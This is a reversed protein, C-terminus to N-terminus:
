RRPRLRLTEDILTEVTAADPVTGRIAYVGRELEDIFPSVDLSFSFTARPIGVEACLERFRPRTLAGGNTRLIHVMVWETTTLAVELSRPERASVFRGATDVDLSELQRCLEVVLWSPPPGSRSISARKIGQRLECSEQPSHAALTKRVASVLPNGEIEPVWFTEADAFWAIHASRELLELTQARGVEGPLSASLESVTCYGRELIAERVKARMRSTAIRAPDAIVSEVGDLACVLEWPVDRNLVAAADFVGQPSFAGQSIGADRLLGAATATPCPAADAITAIARDLAPAFVQLEGLHAATQACVQRVREHSVGVKEAVERLSRPAHGDWGHHAIFAQADREISTLRVIATLEDELKMDMFARANAEANRLYDFMELPYDSLHHEAKVIRRAFSALSSRELRDHRTYVRAFLPADFRPDGLMVEGSHPNRLAQLAVLRTQTDVDLDAPAPRDLAELLTHEFGVLADVLSIPGLRPSATILDEVRLPEGDLWRQLLGSRELANRTRNSFVLRLTQPPAWVHELPQALVEDPLSRYRRLVEAVVADAAQRCTHADRRLWITDDLDALCAVHYGPPLQELLPDPVPVQLIPALALPAIAFGKRPYSATLIEAREAAM